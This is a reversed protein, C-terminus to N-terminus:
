TDLVARASTARERRADVPSKGTWRKFARTFAAHESFGLAFAVVSLPQTPDSLLEEARRRRVGDVIARFTTGEDALARRVTREGSGLQRAISALSPEGDVLQDAVVRAVTAAVTESSRSAKVQAVVQGEFYSAMAGNAMRPTADLLARPLVLADDAQGWSVPGGFFAEHARTDAPAPHRLRVAVARVETAFTERAGALVEALLAENAVRLGLSREGDRHWVLAVHDGSERTEWRGSTTVLGSFRLLRGLAERGSRATLVAFGFPGREITCGRAYATPLGPDRVARMTAAWAAYLAGVPVFGDLAALQAESLGSAGVIAARSAGRQAATEVVAHVLVTSATHSSAKAWM